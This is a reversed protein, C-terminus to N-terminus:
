LIEPTPHVPEEAPGTPMEEEIGLAKWVIEVEQLDGGHEALWKLHNPAGPTLLGAVKKLFFRFRESPDEAFGSLVWCWSRLLDINGACKAEVDDKWKDLSAESVIAHLRPV